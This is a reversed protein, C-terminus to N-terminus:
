AKWGEIQNIIQWNALWIVGNLQKCEDRLFREVLNSKAARISAVLMEKRWGKPWEGYLTKDARKTEIDAIHRANDRIWEAQCYKIEDNLRMKNETALKLVQAHNIQKM